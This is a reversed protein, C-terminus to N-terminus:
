RLQKAQHIARQELNMSIACLGRRRGYSKKIGSLGYYITLGALFGITLNSFVFGTTGVVFVIFAATKDEIVDRIFLAHQIGVYCLLVGLIGAPFASIAAVATHGFVLAFVILLGGIILGSRGSTAGFKNHATLGGCGHCMPAGGVLGSAINALGMSLPISKLTLRKAKEGYLLKGTAETAVIANGFTLAIQPLVLLVFGNWLGVADPMLVHLGVPGLVPTKMGKFSLAIGILLLPILPPLKKILMLNVVLVVGAVIAVTIEVRMLAFSSKVLLAGLGLQIGRIVSVPFIEGLRASLGTVSILVLIVGMAFGAANIIEFGLGSAIAIAAMAMLPQVPMTIRFYWASAVYFVGAALFLATPNFGNKAILAVALPFLVGIDGFAGSLDWLFSRANDSYKTLSRM